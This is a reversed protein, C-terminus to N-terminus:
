VIEDQFKLDLYNQLEIPTEAFCSLDSLITKQNNNFSIKRKKSFTEKENTNLLTFIEEIYRPMKELFYKGRILKEPSSELHRIEEMVEEHTFISKNIMKNNFAELNKISVIEKYKKIKEFGKEEVGDQLEAIRKKQLSFCANGYLINDILEQRKKRLLSWAVEVDNCSNIDEASAGIKMRLFKKLAEDTFYLNEISYTPTIFVDPSVDANNDYDKDVFFLNILGTSNPTNSVKNQLDLVNKKGKCDYKKMTRNKLHYSFRPEYYFEDDYGEYFVFISIKSKNQVYDMYISAIKKTQERMSKPSSM